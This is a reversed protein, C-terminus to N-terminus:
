FLKTAEEEEEGISDEVTKANWALAASRIATADMSIWQKWAITGPCSVEFESTRDQCWANM